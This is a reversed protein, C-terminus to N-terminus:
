GCDVGLLRGLACLFEALTYWSIHRNTLGIGGARRGHVLLLSVEIHKIAQEVARPLPRLPREGLGVAAASCPRRSACSFATSYPRHKPRVSASGASGSAGLSCAAVSYIPRIPRRSSSCSGRSM